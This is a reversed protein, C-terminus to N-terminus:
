NKLCSPLIYFLIENVSTKEVFCCYGGNVAPWVNALKRSLASKCNTKKERVGFAVPLEEGGCGCCPFCCFNIFYVIFTVLM